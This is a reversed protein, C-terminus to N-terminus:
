QIDLLQALLLLLNQGSLYIAETRDFEGGGGGGGGGGGSDTATEDGYCKQQKYRVGKAPIECRKDRFHGNSFACSLQSTM